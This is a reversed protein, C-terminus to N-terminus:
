TKQQLHFLRKGTYLFMAFMGFCFLIILYLPFYAGQFAKMENMRMDSTCCTEGAMFLSCTM